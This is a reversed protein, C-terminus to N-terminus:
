WKRFGRSLLMLVWILSLLGLGIGVIIVVSSSNNLDPMKKLNETKSQRIKEALASKEWDTMEKKGTFLKQRDPAPQSAYKRRKYSFWFFIILGITGLVIFFYIPILIGNAM